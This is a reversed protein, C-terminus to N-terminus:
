PKPPAACSRSRMTVSTVNVRSETSAKVLLGKVLVTHGRHGPLDFESIGILRYRRTGSLPGTVTQGAAPGNAISPVPDTASTLWWQAGQEAVCGTVAVIPVPAAQGHLPPGTGVLAALAVGAAILPRRM